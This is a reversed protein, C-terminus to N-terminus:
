RARQVTRQGELLIRTESALLLKHLAQTLEAHRSMSFAAQSVGLSLPLVSNSSAVLASVTKIGVSVANWFSPSPMAVESISSAFRSCRSEKIRLWATCPTTSLEENDSPCVRFVSALPSIEIVERTGVISILSSAVTILRSTGAVFPM